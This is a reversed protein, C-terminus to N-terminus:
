NNYKCSECPIHSDRYSGDFGVKGRGTDNEPLEHNNVADGGVRGNSGIKPVENGLEFLLDRGYKNGKWITTRSM